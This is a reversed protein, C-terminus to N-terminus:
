NRAGFFGMITMNGLTKYSEHWLDFGAEKFLVPYNHSFSHEPGYIETHVNTKFDHNPGKPEIAVFMVKGLHNVTNLFAHLRQETFYELVGRSTVFITNGQANEKIWDFGDSAVFKLRQDHGYKENNLQVQNSSLDIGICQNIKPFKSSLYNLVSGDGTGIEILTHYHVTHNSLEKELEDFIFICRTLFENTFSTKTKMFFDDGKNTWYNQHLEALKNFDKKKKLKRLIARRMIRDGISQNNLMITMGEESLQRAKQPRLFILINGLTASTFTLLISKAKSIM